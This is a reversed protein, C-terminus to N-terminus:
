SQRSRIVEALDGGGGIPSMGGAQWAQPLWGKKACATTLGFDLVKMVRRVLLKLKKLKISQDTTSVSAEKAGKNILRSSSNQKCSTPVCSGISNYPNSMSQIFTGAESPSSANLM